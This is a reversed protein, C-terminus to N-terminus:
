KGWYYSLAMAKSCHFCMIMSNHFDHCDYLYLFLQSGKGNSPPPTERLLVVYWLNLSEFPRVIKPWNSCRSPTTAHQEQDLILVFPDICHRRIPMINDNQRMEKNCIYTKKAKVGIFPMYPSFVLNCFRQCNCFSVIVPFLHMLLFVLTSYASMAMTEVAVVACCLSVMCNNKM